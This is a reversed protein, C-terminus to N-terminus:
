NFFLTLGLIALLLSILWFKRVVRTESWGLKEFHHHLPAMLFIRKKTLKYYSVQMIVSVAEAVFLLSIVFFVVEQKIIIAILGLVAGIALSGVDGMFVKAPKHNFSLFALIAGMLAYCFFIIEKINNIHIINLKSAFLPNGVAFIILVLCLLNIVAPVSVLGDLGDTLNVANASGVIVFNVFIVYLFLPLVLTNFHFPLTIQSAFHLGNIKGLWLFILGIFAFQLIIKYKGAFGKPNNKFVKLLDDILGIGAFFLMVALLVLIYQNKINIFIVSTFLTALVIFIGGMTPTSKKSALHHQPGDSRIPQFLKKQKVIEIYKKISFFAVIYAFLFCYFGKLWAIQLIELGTLM